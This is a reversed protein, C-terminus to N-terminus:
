QFRIRVSDAHKELGELTALREIDDKVKELAKRSYSILHYSRMFDEVRLGSFFRATGGTPLVHSPGAIYDGLSVPSYPGLFVAGVNRVKKLLKNPSRVLIQLHEPAIRNAVEVAQDLNKVLVIYGKEIEKRIIRALKKSPTILVATGMLHEAQSLLDAKVYAPNVYQNAIIAVESPGPLMEIDVFGFVQRKAEVVYANGPGIIKDVRPITKTGFALAAIAQAGGVKYVENVKLLNAVSLIHPNINGDEDPPTVLVIRRVGALQAPIVTMYVTSVLPATGAPIYIGVSDLPQYVDKLVIGEEQKLSWSSKFKRRYFCTVNNIAVKLTTVFKSDIDQFAGNIENETVRMQSPKLKVRDFKYTYRVVANDGLTRVDEIIRRVKEYIRKRIFPARNIIKELEKSSPKIVKM